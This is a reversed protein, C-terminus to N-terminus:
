SNYYFLESIGSDCFNKAADLWDRSFYIKKEKREGDWQYIQPPMKKYTKCNFNYFREKRLKEVKQYAIRFVDQPANESYKLIIHSVSRFCGKQQIDWYYLAIAVKFPKDKEKLWISINSLDGPSGTSKDIITPVGIDAKYINSSVCDIVFINAPSFGVNKIPVDIRYGKEEQNEEKGIKGTVFAILPIQSDKAMKISVFSTFVAGLSGVMTLFSLITQGNISPASEDNLEVLADELNSVTDPDPTTVPTAYCYIIGFLLFIYITVILFLFKHKKM